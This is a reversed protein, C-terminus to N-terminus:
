KAATKGVGHLPTLLNSLRGRSMRRTEKYGVPFGLSSAKTCQPGPDSVVSNSKKYRPTGEPLEHGEWVMALPVSTTEDSSGSDKKTGEQTVWFKTYYQGGEECKDTVEMKLDQDFLMRAAARIIGKALPALGARFSWYHLTFGDEGVIEEVKFCPPCMQPLKAKAMYGHMRDMNGLFERMNKGQSRLMGVYNNRVCWLDVFGEGAVELAQDVTVGLVETIGTLIAMTQDMNFKQTFVFAGDAIDDMGARKKVLHWKDMGFKEIVVMEICDNIVGYFGTDTPVSMGDGRPPMSPESIGSSALSALSLLCDDVVAQLDTNVQPASALRQPPGRVFSAMRQLEMENENSASSEVSPILEDRFTMGSM